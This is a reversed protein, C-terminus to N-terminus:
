TAGRLRRLIPHDLDSIVKDHCATRVIEEIPMGPFSPEGVQSEAEDIEYAGLDNNATVRVWKTRAEYAAELSTRAWEDVRGDSRPLRIPWLFLVGQRTISTILWRASFTPDAALLPQLSRAVVYFERDAKLELVGTQFWYADNPHTRIFWEPSPKRIPISKVLKKVKVAAAFDQTLRLAELTCPDAQSKARDTLPASDGDERSQPIAQGDSRVDSATRDEPQSDPTKEPVM